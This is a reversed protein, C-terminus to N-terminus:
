RMAIPGNGYRSPAHRRRDFDACSNGKVAAAHRSSRLFATENMGKVARRWEDFGEACNRSRWPGTTRECVYEMIPMTELARGDGAPM